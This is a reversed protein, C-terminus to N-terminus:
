RRLNRKTRRRTRRKKTARRDSLLPKARRCPLPSSEMPQTTTTGSIWSDAARIFIGRPFSSCINAPPISSRTPTTTSARLFKQSKKPASRTSFCMTAAAGIRSRIRSGCATRPGAPTQFTGTSPATWGYRNRKKSEWTGCNTCSTGIRSNRATRLGARGTVISEAMAPSARKKAAWKHASIFRM